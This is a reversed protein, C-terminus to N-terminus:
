TSKCPNSFIVSKQQNEIKLLISAFLVSALCLIPLSGLPLCLSLSNDNEVEKEEEGETQPEVESFLCFFKM